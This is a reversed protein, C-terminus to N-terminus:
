APALVSSPALVSYDLFLWNSFGFSTGPVLVVPKIQLRAKASSVLIGDLPERLQYAHDVTRRFQCDATILADCGGVNQGDLCIVARFPALWPFAHEAFVNGVQDERIRIGVLTVGVLLSLHANRIESPLLAHCRKVLHRLFANSLQDDTLSGVHRCNRRPSWWRDDGGVIPPRAQPQDPAWNFIEFEGQRLSRTGARCRHDPLLRGLSGVLLDKTFSLHTGDPVALNACSLLLFGEDAMAQGHRSSSERPPGIKVEQM